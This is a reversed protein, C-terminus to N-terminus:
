SEGFCCKNKAYFSFGLIIKVLIIPSLSHLTDNRFAASYQYIISIDPTLPCLQFANSLILNNSMRKKQGNLYFIIM